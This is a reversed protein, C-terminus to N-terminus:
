SEVHVDAPSKDPRLGRWVPHRLRGDPTWEAFAVEGVIRPEVWRAVVAQPRPVQGDAFPSAPRELPALLRALDDLAATTFGTGVHGVYRLGAAGPLGLLLSGIGAARRGEGPKWGGVLVEQTRVNKVKVWARSRRGPEYVSDARKAVVGELGAAASAALADPGGGPFYAPVAWCPGALGLDELMARRRTWPEGVLLRGDLRLLDFVLYTVPVQGVLRRVDAPRVVHMRRQLLSFSPRGAADVAVIEGDLVVDRGDLAAAVGAVEPYTASVDRDNRSLLRAPADADVYCVARVGDWKMEYAWRGDEAAPPLSGVSALM